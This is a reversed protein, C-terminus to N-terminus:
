FVKKLRVFQISVNSMNINRGGTIITKIRTAVAGYTAGSAIVKEDLIAVFQGGYKLQLKDFNIM